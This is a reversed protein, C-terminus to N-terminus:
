VAKADFGDIPIAPDAEAPQDWASLSFGANGSGWVDQMGEGDKEQWKYFDALGTLNAKVYHEFDFKVTDGVM